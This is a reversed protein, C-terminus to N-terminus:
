RGYRWTDRSRQDIGTTTKAASWEVGNARALSLTLPGYVMSTVDFGRAQVAAHVEPPLREDVHTATPEVHVRPIDVARDLPEGHEIRFAAVQAVASPIRRGGLAGLAIRTSAEPDVLVVPSMAVLARGGPRISNSRGPQPDFWMMGNNLYFGADAVATRSGFLSLLTSTLAVVRGEGDAVSLHTTATPAGSFSAIRADFAAGCAVAFDAYWRADRPRAPSRDLTELIHAVTLAGSPVPSGYVSWGRYTALPEVGEHVVAEVSRLDEDALVGGGRQAVAVIAEALPGSRLVDEGDFAIRRLTAALAPNRLTRRAGNLAFPREGPPYTVDVLGDSHAALEDYADFVSAETFVDLPWGNEAVEIAPALVREWPMRGLRRHAEALASVLRPAAVSGGGVENRRGAMEPWGYGGSPGGVPEGYLDPTAALPARAEGDVVTCAGDLDLHVLEGVAGPGTMYPEVVGLVFCAAVAADVATGGDRLVQEGAEIAEIRPASVVGRTM